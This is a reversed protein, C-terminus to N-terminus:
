KKYEEIFLLPKDFYKAYKQLEEDSFNWWKIKTFEKIIDDSFRMRILKAPNGAYIGYDILNKTVVSGMGIVVGDGIVVGSKIKVGEGIWVDNGIMTTKLSEMPYLAFKKKVSDKGARFVPSTSVREMSHSAQGILVNDAISCFAGIKANLITCNYGCYSHKEFVSNLVTSGAEIKSTRDITSNKVAKRKMKKLFKSFYYELSGYM